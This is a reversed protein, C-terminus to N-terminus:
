NIKKYKLDQFIYEVDQFIYEVDQFIYELDQFMFDNVYLFFIEKRLQQHRNTDCPFHKM